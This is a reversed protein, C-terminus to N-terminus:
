HRPVNTIEGMTGSHTDIRHDLALADIKAQEGGLM